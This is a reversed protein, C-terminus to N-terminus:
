DWQVARSQPRRRAWVRHLGNSRYGPLSNTKTPSTLDSVSAINLTVKQYGSHPVAANVSGDKCKLFCICVTWLAARVQIVTAKNPTTANLLSAVHMGSGSRSKKGRKRWSSSGWVQSSRCPVCVCIWVLTNVDAQLAFMYQHRMKSNKVSM